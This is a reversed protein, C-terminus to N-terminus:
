VNEKLTTVMKISQTGHKVVYANYARRIMQEDISTQSKRVQKKEGTGLTIELHYQRVPAIKRELGLQKEYKARIHDPLDDLRLGM